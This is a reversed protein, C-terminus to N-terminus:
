RRQENQMRRAAELYRRAEADGPNVALVRDFAQAAEAPKRLSLLALGLNMAAFSNRPDLRLARQSAEACGAFDGKEARLAGLAVWANVHGPDAKLVTLYERGAEGTRGM